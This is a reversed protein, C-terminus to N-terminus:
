ENEADKDFTVLATKSQILKIKEILYNEKRESAFCYVDFNFTNMVGIFENLEESCLSELYTRAQQIAKHNDDQLSDLVALTTAFHPTSRTSINNEQLIQLIANCYESQLEAKSIAEKAEFVPNKLTSYRATM